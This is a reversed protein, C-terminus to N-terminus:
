YNERFFFIEKVYVAMGSMNSQVVSIQYQSDSNSESEIKNFMTINSGISLDM